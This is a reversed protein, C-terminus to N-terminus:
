KTKGRLTQKVKTKTQSKSKRPKTKSITNKENNLKKFIYGDLIDYYTALKVLYLNVISNYLQCFFLSHTDHWERKKTYNLPRDLKFPNATFAFRQVQIVYADVCSMSCFIRGDYKQMGGKFEIVKNCSPLSCRILMNTVGRSSKSHLLSFLFGGVKVPIRTLASYIHIFIIYKLTCRLSFRLRRM